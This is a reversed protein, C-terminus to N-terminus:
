APEQCYRYIALRVLWMYLLKTMLMLKNKSSSDLQYEDIMHKVMDLRGVVVVHMTFFSVEVLM